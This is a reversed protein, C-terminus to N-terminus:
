KRLTLIVIWHHEKMAIFANGPDIILVNLNSVFFDAIVLRLHSYSGKNRVSFQLLSNM